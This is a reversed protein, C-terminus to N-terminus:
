TKEIVRKVVRGHGKFTRTPAFEGLRHGVMDETIYVSIFKRGNHVEFHHGVFEPAIQSSRCYTRVVGSQNKAIKDFLKKDIFPGKKSSRSM